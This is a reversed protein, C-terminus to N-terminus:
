SAHAEIKEIIKSAYYQMGLDGPHAAVGAHEVIHTNGDDGNVVAGISSRYAEDGAIEALSVFDLNMENAANLKYTHKAGIDWFEDIVIIHANSCGNKIYAFLEKCDQEFTTLDSANESLQITVLDLQDSLYKDLGQLTQARDTGTVEWTSFNIPMAFVKDNKSQLYSTVLHVYDKERSSAAMGWRGWWYDCIGHLTISNGIALYNIGETNYSVKGELDNIKENLDDIEEQLLENKKTKSM